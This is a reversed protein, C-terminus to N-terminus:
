EVKYRYVLRGINGDNDIGEIIIKYTGPGDANYYEFTANGNKDTKLEPQWYITSRLDHKKDAAEPHDYKPSYFERAKYFGMPAIPLVGISVIDDAKQMRSKTTIVLVGNLGDHGYIFSNPPQLVEIRDIDDAEISSFEMTAGDIILTLPGQSINNVIAMSGSLHVGHILGALDVMLSGSHPIDKGHIVQDAAFEAVYSKSRNEEIKQGHINVQKLLTGKFHGSKVLEDQQLKDNNVLLSLVTDAVAPLNRLWAPSLLPAPQPGFFTIKTSNKNKANVASLVFRTSDPFMLDKFRFMGKEDSTATFLPGKKAPILTVTGNEIPKNLLNKIQGAIEIANEPQWRPTQKTTDLVQKWTFRRYGQTLMLIDLNDRAITSTDAFYWAPQEVYGKLDSTLLLHTLINEPNIESEHVISENTVSVSFHGEAPEDRRNLSNLKINVKERPAYQEKGATLNLNLNLQDYNQVYILRECLPENEPSFLTILAVGTRLKRKLVDLKIEMDTLSCNVTTVMGGSYIVLTYNKNQNAQFYGEGTSIKVIAKPLSDNNVSLTIGDPDAKPLDVEDQRGDPYSLRATYTKGPKAEFYFYGMGLHSSAFSAVKKNENDFVDGKVAVGLGNVGMAKFAVKSRIGTVLEGGEPFFQMDPKPTNPPLRKLPKSALISAKLAGVPLIREFFAGDPNNRMWQTYARISFNGGPLTDPLAFDGWAIGSDLQLKISHIIRNGPNILDVHLVGSLTSLKHDDGKTVYAKFYVTDGAAYCPKDLQLWAKEPDHTSTFTNLLSVINNGAPPQALSNETEPAEYDAPLLEAVRSRSWVGSLVLSTPNTVTGNNDFFAYPNFFDIRTNDVNQPDDLRTANKNYWSYFHQYKNYTVYLADSDKALGFAYLGQQNTPKIYASPYMQQTILTQVMKPLKSRKIWASLSDRAGPASGASKANKYFSIRAAIVSDAPRAPNTHRAIRLVRFGERTIENQLSARLFHMMSGEYVEQRHKKWRKQESPKGQMEEFLVSGEYSLQFKAAPDKNLTFSTLLYKLKYGLGPNDIVIFDSASATLTATHEDYDLDILDPNEITCDKALGSLGLFADKFWTLNRDRNPDIVPRIRVENLVMVKPIIQIDGLELDAANVTISQRYTEFGIVTIVLDYKGPKVRSLNFKGDDTSKSGVSSNSLFVSANAVPKKDAQNIVRGAITVQAFSGLPLILLLLVLYKYM